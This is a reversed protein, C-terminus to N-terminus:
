PCDNVVDGGGREITGSPRPAVGREVWAELQVFAWRHCPLVPRLREPHLAHLADLHTGDQVAYSRHRAAAGAERVLEAYAEGQLGPPLLPDLTGHLSLLPRGIRGTNEIRAVARRVGAPRDAYAYDADCGPVGSLCLPVGAELPGDFGPDLEERFTRQTVDWFPGHHEDWLFESRAPFGAAVMAQRARADGLAARPYLRLAAPLFTLPNPGGARWMPAAWEVGGDYLSPERELAARVVYGGNSYGTAYTRRPASGYRTATARQAARTLEALRDRWEVMAAGPVRGDRFFGPGTNGKDTAAFAYGRAVLWDSFLFDTAYQRQVGPAPAVVLKGNWDDPLRLVFQADHRLGRTLNTRSDDVFYGDM